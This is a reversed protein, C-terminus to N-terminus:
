TDTNIWQLGRKVTSTALTDLMSALRAERDDAWFEM